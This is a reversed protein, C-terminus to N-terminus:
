HIVTARGYNDWATVDDPRTTWGCPQIPPPGLEAAPLAGAPLNGCQIVGGGRTQVFAAGPAVVTWGSEDRQLTAFSLSPPGDVIRAALSEGIALAAGAESRVMVAVNGDRFLLVGVGDGAAQDRFTYDPILRSFGERQRLFWDTTTSEDRGVYVRVFGDGTALPATWGNEASQFAPDGLDRQHVPIGAHIGAAFAPALLLLPIM